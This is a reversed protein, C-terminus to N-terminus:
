RIDPWYSIIKVKKIAYKTIKHYRSMLKTTNFIPM